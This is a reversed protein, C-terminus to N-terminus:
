QVQRKYVDQMKIEAQEFTKENFYYDDMVLDYDKISGQKEVPGAISFSNKIYINNFKKSAM